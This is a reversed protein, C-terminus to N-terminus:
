GTPQPKESEKAKESETPTPKPPEKIEFTSKAEIPNEGATKWVVKYVGPLAIAADGKCENGRHRNWTATFSTRMNRDILLQKDEVGASECTSLSVIPDDGSTIDLDTHGRGVDIYCPNDSSKNHLSLTFTIPAKKDLPADVDMSVDLIDPTCAIPAFSSQDDNLVVTSQDQIRSSVYHLTFLGAILFALLLLALLLLRRNRKRRAIEAATPKRKKAPPRKRAAAEQVPRKRTATNQTGRVSAGKNRM